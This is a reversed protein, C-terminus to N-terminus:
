VPLPRDVPMWYQRQLFFSSPGEGCSTCTYKAIGRLPHDPSKLIGRRESFDALNATGNGRLDFRSEDHDAWEGREQQSRSGADSTLEKRGVVHWWRDRSLVVLYAFKGERHTSSILQLICCIIEVSVNGKLDSAPEEIVDLLREIRL